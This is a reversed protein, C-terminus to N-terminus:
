TKNAQQEELKPPVFGYQKSVIDLFNITKPNLSYKNGSHFIAMVENEQMGDLSEHFHWSFNTTFLAGFNTNKYNNLFGYKKLANDVEIFWKKQSLDEAQTIPLNLDDFIILPIDKGSQELSERIHDMIKVRASEVDFIEGSKGLVGARHHSKAEFAVKDKTIKHTGIFECHKEKLNIWKIDFGARAALGGVAMEYKAGQFNDKNKLRNLLSPLTRASCHFLSYYDYALALLSRINGSQKIAIPKRLPIETSQEKIKGIIEASWQALLHQNEKEKTMEERLWKYGLAENFIDLIFEHFTENLPRKHVRNGVARFRHGMGVTDIFPRGTLFGGREFPEQPLNIFEKAYELVEKPVVPKGFKDYKKDM